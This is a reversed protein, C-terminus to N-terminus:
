AYAYGGYAMGYRDVSSKWDNFVVGTVAHGAHEIRRVTEEIERRTSKGARVVNFVAGAHAAVTLADAVALVPATDVLVYDYQGSLAQLVRGFNEHGLLEAARNGANGAPLFDVNDAVNRQILQGAASQGRILEALGASREGGFYRHLHGTRLDGDVLLVRKGVSALVTAFNASLFTKGVGPTPGTIVIVNNDAERMTFQLCARFGRLSELVNDAPADMALLKRSGNPQLAARGMKREIEHAEESHPITAIVPLGVLQQIQEPEELKGSWNRRLLAGGVGLLLGALAAGGLVFLPKPRVPKVPAVAADLLRANGVKSAATLRLQQASGLLSMYVETNVKLDRTSSFVDQEVAPLEKLKAQIAAVEGSVTRIESDLAMVDPHADQFKASMLQRKQRLEGLRTEAAVSRQLLSKTEEGLDVTGRSRRLANYRSESDEMQKKVEPLQRNLFALSQEVEDSKREVNQKLYEDGVANLVMSARKPDTNEFSVGIVDTQKGKEGIGLQKQLDEVAEVRPLRKLVFQTGPRAAISGVQLEIDGWPTRVSLPTGVTGRADVGFKDLVLRYRGGEQVTLVFKEDLLNDPVNFLPVAAQEQGWAYGGFGALGPESLGSYHRAVAEGILPLRKPRVDIDLHLKDVVRTLVRRSKLVEMESSIVTKIDSGGPSEAGVGKPTTGSEEVQILLNAEYVPRVLLVILVGVLILSLMVLAIFRRNAVLTEKFSMADITDNAPYGAAYGAHELAPPQIATPMIM